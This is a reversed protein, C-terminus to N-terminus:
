GPLRLVGNDQLLVHRDVLCLAHMNKKHRVRPANGSSSCFWTCKNTVVVFREYSYMTVSVIREPCSFKWKILASSSSLCVLDHDSCQILYFQCYASVHRMAKAGWFVGLKSQRRCPHTSSSVFFVIGNVVVLFEDRNDNYFVQSCQRKIVVMNTYNLLTGDFTLITVEVGHRTIWADKVWRQVVCVSPKQMCLVGYRSLSYTANFSPLQKKGHTANKTQYRDFPSLDGKHIEHGNVVLYHESTYLMPHYLPVYQEQYELAMQQMDVGRLLRRLYANCQKLIFLGELDLFPVLCHQLVDAPLRNM